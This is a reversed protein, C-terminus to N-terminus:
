DNEILKTLDLSNLFEKEEKLLFEIIEILNDCLTKGKTPTILYNHIAQHASEIDLDKLANKIALHEIKILETFKKKLENFRTHELRPEASSPFIGKFYRYDRMKKGEYETYEVVYKLTCELMIRAMATKANPFKNDELNYCEEIVDKIKTLIKRKWVPRKKVPCRFLSTKASNNSQESKHDSTDSIQKTDRVVLDSFFLNNENQTKQEKENVKKEVFDSFNIEIKDLFGYGKLKELFEKRLTKNDVNHYTTKPNTHLYNVMANIYSNFRKEDFINLSYNTKKGRFSYGCEKDSLFLREFVTLRGGFEGGSRVLERFRDGYFKVVHNYFNAIKLFRKFDSDIEKIENENIGKLTLRHIELAKAIPSWSRVSTSAHEDRIISNLVSEDYIIVPLKLIEFREPLKYKKHEQLAKSAACRRNGDKVLYKDDMKLVLLPHEERFFGIKTINEAIARANEEDLLYKIIDEQSTGSYLDAFRPNKTDLLLDDLQVHLHKFNKNV